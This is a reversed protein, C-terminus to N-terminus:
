VGGDSHGTLPGPHPSLPVGLPHLWGQGAGAGTYLAHASSDQPVTPFGPRARRLSILIPFTLPPVEHPFNATSIKLFPHNSCPTLIAVPSWKLSAQAPLCDVSLDLELLGDPPRLLVSAGLLRASSVRPFSTSPTPTPPPAGQRVPPAAPPLVHARSATQNAPKGPSPSSDPVPFCSCASSPLPPKDLAGGAESLPIFCSSM